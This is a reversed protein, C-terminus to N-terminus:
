EERRPGECAEWSTPMCGERDGTSPELRNLEKTEVGEEELCGGLYGNRCPCLRSPRPVSSVTSGHHDWLRLHGEGSENDPSEM